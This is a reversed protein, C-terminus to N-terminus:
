RNAIRVNSLCATCCQEKGEEFIMVERTSRDFKYLNNSLVEEKTIAQEKDNVTKLIDRFDNPNFCKKEPMIMLEHISSGAIFLNSEIKDAFEGLIDTYYLLVAGNHINKNSGVYLYDDGGPDVACGLVETLTRITFGGTEKTREIAMFLIDNPDIGLGECMDRTISGSVIQTSPSEIEIRAVVALDLYPLYVSNKLQESNWERNILRVFCNELIYDRDVTQIASSIENTEPNVRIANIFEIVNEITGGSSLIDDVYILPTVRIGSEDGVPIRCALKRVGNNKTVVQFSIDPIAEKIRDMLEKKNM